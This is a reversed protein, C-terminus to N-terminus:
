RSLASTAGGIPDPMFIPSAMYGDDSAYVLTLFVMGNGDTDPGIVRFRVPWAGSQGDTPGVALVQVTTGPQMGLFAEATERIAIEASYPDPSGPWYTGPGSFLFKIWDGAGGADPAGGDVDPGGDPVVGGDAPTEGPTGDGSVAADDPPTWGLHQAIADDVWHNRYPDSGAAPTDGSTVVDMVLQTAAADVEGPDLGPDAGSVAARAGKLKAEVIAQEVPTSLDRPVELGRLQALLPDAGPDTIGWSSMATDGLEWGTKVDWAFKAATVVAGGQIPTLVADGVNNTVAVLLDKDAAGSLSGAVADMKDAHARMAQAQASDDGATRQRIDAAVGQMHGTAEQIDSRNMVAATTSSGGVIVATAVSTILLITTIAFGDDRSLTTRM